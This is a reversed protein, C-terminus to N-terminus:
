APTSPAGNKAGSSAACEERKDAQVTCISLTLVTACVVLVKM